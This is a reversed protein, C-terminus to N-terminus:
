EAGPHHAVVVGVACAALALGVTLVPPWGDRGGRGGVLLELGDPAQQQVLVGDFGPM